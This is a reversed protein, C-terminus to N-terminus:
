RPQHPLEAGREALVERLKDKAASPEDSKLFEDVTFKDSGESTLTSKYPNMHHWWHTVQMSGSEEDVYLTWEDENEALAGKTRKHLLINSMM